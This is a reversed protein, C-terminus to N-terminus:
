GTAGGGRHTGDEERGDDGKSGKVGGGEVPPPFMYGYGPETLDINGKAGILVEYCTPPGGLGNSEPNPDHVLVGDFVVVVHNTRTEGDIFTASPGIALAYGKPVWDKGADFAVLVMDFKDILHRNMQEWWDDQPVEWNLHLDVEELPVELLSAICAAWCNGDKNNIRDQHVPKM